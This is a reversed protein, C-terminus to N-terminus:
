LIDIKLVNLFAPFRKPKHCNKCNSKHWTREHTILLKSFIVLFCERMPRCEVNKYIIANNHRNLAKRWCKTSAGKSVNLAELWFRLGETLDRVEELPWFPWWWDEWRKEVNAGIKLIHNGKQWEPTHSTPQVSFIPHKHFSRCVKQTNLTNVGWYFSPILFLM